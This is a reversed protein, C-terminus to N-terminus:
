MLLFALLGAPRALDAMLSVALKVVATLQLLLLLLFSTDLRHDEFSLCKMVCMGQILLLNLRFFITNNISENRHFTPM